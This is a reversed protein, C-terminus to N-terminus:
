ARRDSTGSRCRSRRIRALRSVIGLLLYLPGYAAAAVAAAGINSGHLLSVWLGFPQDSVLYTWTSSPGRLRMRGADIRAPDDPLARFADLIRTEIGAELRAFEENAIRQ